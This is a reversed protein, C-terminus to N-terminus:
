VIVASLKNWKGPEVETDKAKFEDIAQKLARRADSLNAEREAFPCNNVLWLRFYQKARELIDAWIGPYFRLQTPKADHRTSNRKARKRPPEQDEDDVENDSNDNNDMRDEGQKDNDVRDDDDTNDNGIDNDDDINDDGFDADDDINDDGVVNDDDVNDDGVDNTDDVNVNNNDDVEDDTEVIRRPWPRHHVASHRLRDASPPKPKRNRHQHDALVDFTDDGDRASSIPHFTYKSSLPM